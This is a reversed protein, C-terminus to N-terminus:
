HISIFERGLFRVIQEYLVAAISCQEEVNRLWSNIAGSVLPQGGSWV